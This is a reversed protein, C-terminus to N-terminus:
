ARDFVERAIFVGRRAFSIPTRAMVYAHFAASFAVFLWPEAMRWSDNVWCPPEIQAEVCLFEVLGALFADMGSHGCTAPPDAVLSNQGSLTSGRFDDVFGYCARIADDQRAAAIENAVFQALEAVSPASRRIDTGMCGFISVRLSLPPRSPEIGACVTLGIAAGACRNSITWFVRRAMSLGRAGNGMLSDIRAQELSM